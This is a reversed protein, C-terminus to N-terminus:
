NDAYDNFCANDYRLLGQAYRPKAAFINDTLNHFGIVSHFLLRLLGRNRYSLSLPTQPFSIG